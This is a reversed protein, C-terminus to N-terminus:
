WLNTSVNEKKNPYLIAIKEKERTIGRKKNIQTYAM